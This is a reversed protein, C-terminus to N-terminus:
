SVKLAPCPRSVGVFKVPSLLYTAGGLAGCIEFRSDFIIDEPGIGLTAAGLLQSRGRPAEKRKCHNAVVQIIIGLTLYM